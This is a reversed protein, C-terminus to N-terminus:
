IIYFVPFARRGQQRNSVGNCGRSTILYTVARRARGQAHAICNILESRRRVARFLSIIVEIVPSYLALQFQWQKSDFNHTSFTRTATILSLKILGACGHWIYNLLYNRDYM